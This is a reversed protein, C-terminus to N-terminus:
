LDFVMQLRVSPDRRSRKGRRLCTQLCSKLARCEWSPLRRVLRFHRRPPEGEDSNLSRDKGQGQEHDSLAARNPQFCGAQRISQFLYNKITHQSLGLRAAIERNTLGEALSMVVDLERKSLLSLGNSDAARLMPSATLAELAIAMQESSACVEGRHVKRVCDSLTELSSDRSFLGRAGARFAALIIEPKISDLLVVGRVKPRLLRIKRLIELGGLPEEGFRAAIVVVEIKHHVSSEVIDSSGSDQTFVNLSPNQKLAM